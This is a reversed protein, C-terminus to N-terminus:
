IRVLNLFLERLDSSYIAPSKRANVICSQAVGVVRMDHGIIVGWLMILQFRVDFFDDVCVSYPNQFSNDHIKM